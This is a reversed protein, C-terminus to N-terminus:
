SGCVAVAEKSRVLALAEPADPLAARAGELLPRVLKSGRGGVLVREGAPASVSSEQIEASVGRAALAGRLAEMAWRVPRERIMPDTPDAVITTIPGPGGVCASGRLIVAGAATATEKIFDRRTKM